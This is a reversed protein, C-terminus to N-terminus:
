TTSVKRTYLSEQRNLLVELLQENVFAPSAILVCKLTDLNLYKEAAQAVLEYFRALAKDHQSTAGKRKKPMPVDIRQRTASSTSTVLCVHALGEHLVIAGIEARREIDTAESLRDMAIVDWYAKALRFKRHLELDVTHYAGLKVHECETCNRGKVCLVNAECDYRVSEVAVEMQMKIRQSDVSGTASQTQIKRFTTAYVRDGKEILNYIHWMDEPDRPEVTISGCGSSDIHRYLLM